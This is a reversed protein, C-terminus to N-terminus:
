QLLSTATSLPEPAKSVLLITDVVMVCFGLPNPQFIQNGGGM